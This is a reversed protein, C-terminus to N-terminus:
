TTPTTHRSRMQHRIAVFLPVSSWGSTIGDGGCLRRQRMLEIVTVGARSQHTTTVNLIAHMNSVVLRSAFAM